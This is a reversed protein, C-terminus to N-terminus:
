ESEKSIRNMEANHSKELLIIFKIDTFHAVRPVLVPIICSREQAQLPDLFARSYWRLVALPLPWDIDYFQSLWQM